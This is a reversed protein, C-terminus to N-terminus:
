SDRTWRGSTVREIGALDRRTRVEEYGLETLLERLEAGQDYGHELALMADNELYTRAERAIHQIAALADPGPTLADRPEFRCDGEDLHPDGQRVYPPNSVILRFSGSLPALWSGEHFRIRAPEVLRANRRAVALAAASYETAHVECNPRERAIALAVAGSGTGLDAVRCTADTPLFELATEVLLETEPRPILVDPTVSLPLSWFERTGTLYAVPEGAARREVLDLFLQNQEATAEAEPHAFLFARDAQLAHALLIEAERGGEPLASLERRARELLDRVTMAEPIPAGARRRSRLARIAM